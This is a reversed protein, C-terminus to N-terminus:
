WEVAHEILIQFSQTIGNVNDGNLENLSRQLHDMAQIGEPDEIRYIRMGRFNEQIEEDSVDIWRNAGEANVALFVSNGIMLFDDERMDTVVRDGATHLRMGYHRGTSANNEGTRPEGACGAVGSICCCSLLLLRVMERKM